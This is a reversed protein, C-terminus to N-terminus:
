GGHAQAEEHALIIREGEIALALALTNIARIEETKIERGREITLALLSPAMNGLVQAYLYRFLTIETSRFQLRDNNM